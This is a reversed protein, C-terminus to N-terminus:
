RASDYGSLYSARDDATWADALSDDVNAVIGHARTSRFIPPRDCLADNRGREHAEETTM